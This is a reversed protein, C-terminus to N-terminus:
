NIDTKKCKSCFYKNGVKKVCNDHFWQGCVGDCIVEVGDQDCKGIGNGHTLYPNGNGDTLIINNTNINSGNGNGHTLNTNANMNQSGWQLQPGTPTTNTNMTQRHSGNNIQGDYQQQQDM